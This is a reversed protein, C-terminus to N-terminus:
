PKYQKKNSRKKSVPASMQMDRRMRGDFEGKSILDDTYARGGWNSDMASPSEPLERQKKLMEDLPTKKGQYFSTSDYSPVSGINFPPDNRTADILKTKTPGTELAKKGTIEGQGGSQTFFPSNNIGALEINAMMNFSQKVPQNTTPPNGGDPDLVNEQVKYSCNGQTDETAQLQLVPCRINNKRQWKTFEVYEELNNLVIPNVGPVKQKKSNYLFFKGDKQILVDPCASADLKIPSSEPDESHESSEIDKVSESEGEFGEKSLLYSTSPETTICYYLGLILAISTIVLIYSM